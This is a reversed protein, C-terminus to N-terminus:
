VVGRREAAMGRELSRGGTAPGRATRHRDHRLCDVPEARGRSELSFQVPRRGHDFYGARARAHGREPDFLANPLDVWVSDHDDADAPIDIYHHHNFLYFQIDDFVDAGAM